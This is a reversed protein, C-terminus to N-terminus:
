CFDEVDNYEEEIIEISNKLMTELQEFTEPYITVSITRNGITIQIPNYIGDDLIEGLTEGLFAAAGGTTLPYKKM